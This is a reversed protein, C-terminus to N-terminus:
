SRVPPKTIFALLDEWCNEGFYVPIHLNTALSVEQDAGPSFGPLRLVMDSKRLLTKAMELWEDYPRQRRIHLYHALLPAIPCLGLDLLRHCAEEQVAVNAAVDGHTYPSAIYCTLM